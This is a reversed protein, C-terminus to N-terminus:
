RATDDQPMALYARLARELVARMSRDDAKARARLAEALDQPIRVLFRALDTTTPPM